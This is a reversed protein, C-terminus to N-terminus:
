SVRWFELRANSIGATGSGASRSYDLTITHTGNSGFTVYGFGSAPHRQTTHTDKPEQVQALLQTAGDVLVRGRFSNGGDTFYWEYSWGVRYTGAPVSTTTLTVKNTFTTSAVTSLGLSEANFFSSGFIASVTDTTINTIRGKNDVTVIPFTSPTGYTGASVGTTTLLSSISNGADNYNFNIDASNTLINGVADQAAENFDSITSSLQTGTHNSRNRDSSHFHLSSDGSDTLDTYETQTLHSHTSSNLNNLQAHNVGAPIVSALIQNGADDYTFDVSSSDTLIGGVADQAAENFGLVQTTPINVSVTFIDTIQGQANVTVSPISSANGYGGPTVGTNQISLTRSTTIDGGGTLGTGANINVSSHNIHENAVYNQLLNHNVGSTLVEATISNSIDNYTFDISASDVLSNGVADQALEDTYQTVTSAITLTDSPDNYNLSIGAGPQLLTAVRDDIAESLSQVQAPNISINVNTAATIQGQANVTIQPVQSTNGYTTAGVGTNTISITPNGSVGNGNTVTIGTSATITRGTFTDPATQTLLGNTNYAALSTLTGDLPQKESDLENIAAQVTTAAINGAPANTIQTATYDGSQATVAGIRGFVSTVESPSIEIYASGSWRYTKNNNLAVYIKGTEGTVPFAALNAYEEVDDVYSPLQSAPVKGGSDLSAYGNPNGKESLRQYRADGRAENYYQTHDDDALGSISGHDVGSQILSASLTNSPDNYTFDITSSDVLISGVADQAREETFFLNSGETISSSTDLTKDFVDSGINLVLSENASPFGVSVEIKGSVGDIKEFLYDATTDNNTVKSLFDNPSEQSLSVKLRGSNDKLESAFDVYPSSGMILSVGLNLPLDENGDNVTLTDDSLLQIVESSEAYKDYDSVSITLQGNSPITQGVDSIFVPSGTNNKLIKM